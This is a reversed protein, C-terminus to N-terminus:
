RPTSFRSSATMFFLCPLFIPYLTLRLGDWYLFFDPRECACILRLSCSFDDTLTFASCTNATTLPCSPASFCSVSIQSLLRCFQIHQESQCVQNQSISRGTQRSSKTRMDSRINPFEVTNRSLLQSVVIKM